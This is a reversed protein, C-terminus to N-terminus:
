RRAAVIRTTPSGRRSRRRRAGRSRRHDRRLAFAGSRRSPWTASDGARRAATGDRLRACRARREVDQAVEREADAAAAAVPRHRREDLLAVARMRAGPRRRARPAAPQRAAHVRRDGRQEDVARDAVPQRADEDVVASSRSSSAVCTRVRNSRSCSGSSKTSASAIQKEIPEGADGIGSCFRLIM